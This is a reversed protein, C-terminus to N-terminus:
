LLEILDEHGQHSAIQAATLGDRSRPKPDAGHDLLLEVIEIQGTAAAAMLPTLGDGQPQNPDAGADLLLEAGELSGGAIAAHLPRFAIPNDSIPDPDAGTELLIECAKAQGFRAALHLPRMGDASLHHAGEPDMELSRRLADLFGLASAEFVDIGDRSAAIRRAVARHGAYLALMLASVGGPTRTDALGPTAALLADTQDPDGAQVASLFDNERTGM